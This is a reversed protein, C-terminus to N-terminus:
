YQEAIANVLDRATVARQKAASYKAEFVPTRADRPNKVLYHKCLVADNVASVYNQEYRLLNIAEQSNLKGGENLIRVLGYAAEYLMLDSAICAAGSTQVVDYYKRKGEERVQIEWDGVRSGHPTRETVLAERLSRDHVAEDNVKGVAGDAARYFRELIVKMDQTAIESSTNYIASPAINQQEDSARAVPQSPEGNLARMFIAMQDVEQKSITM